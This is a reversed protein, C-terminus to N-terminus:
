MSFYCQFLVGGNFLKVIYSFSIQACALVPKVGCCTKWVPLSEWILVASDDAYM